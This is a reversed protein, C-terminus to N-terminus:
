KCLAALKEAKARDVRNATKGEEKAATGVIAHDAFQIYGSLNEETVGSGVALPLTVASRVERVRDLPTEEGTGKGSVIIVDARARSELDRAADGISEGALPRAHKVHVDAWIRVGPAHAARFRLVEAAKGEIIGQDTSMAGALVNVRIFEAGTVTAIALAALADNRLVQVGLPLPSLERLARVITTMATLTLAPVSEKFYPADGYNEVLLGDFGAAILIEADGLARDIAAALSGAFGPAGPLPLLHIMGILKM